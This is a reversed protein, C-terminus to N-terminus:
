SECSGEGIQELYSDRFKDKFQSFSWNHESLLFYSKPSVIYTWASVEQGSRARAIIPTRLYLDGEYRDLQDWAANTLGFYLIGDVTGGSAPIIGPYVEARITRRIYGPLFAEQRPYRCGCIRYMIEEDMLTGYAFLNM